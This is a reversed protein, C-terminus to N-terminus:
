DQDCCESRRAEYGFRAERLSPGCTRALNNFSSSVGVTANCPRETCMLLSDAPLTGNQCGAELNGECAEQASMGEPVTWFSGGSEIQQLCHEVYENYSIEGFPKCIGDIRAQGQPCEEPM